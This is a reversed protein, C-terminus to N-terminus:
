KLITNIIEIKYLHINFFWGIITFFAIFLFIINLEKIKFIHIQKENIESIFSVLLFLINLVSFALFDVVLVQRFISAKHINNLVSSSFTIGGVFALIITAFIGLITINEREMQKFEKRMEERFEEKTNVVENTVIDKSKKIQQVALNYHDYIKIIIKLYDEELNEKEHAGIMLKDLNTGLIGRKEETEINFIYNSIESYLIRIIKNQSEVFERICEISDSPNYENSTVSLSKCLNLMIKRTDEIKIGNTEVSEIEFEAKLYKNNKEKEISEDNM